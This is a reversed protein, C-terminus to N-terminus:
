PAKTGLAAFYAEVRAANSELACLRQEVTLNIGGQESGPAPAGSAAVVDAATLAQAAEELHQAVINGPAAEAPAAPEGLNLEPEPAEPAEPEM